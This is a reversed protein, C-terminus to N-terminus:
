RVRVQLPGSFRDRMDAGNIENIAAEFKLRWQEAQPLNRTYSFLEALTGYLYVTPHATLLWNTPEDDSLAPIREYLVGAVDGSGDFFFQDGQWAWGTATGQTGRALLDEYSRAALPTRENGDIWLTKVGVTGDPVAICGDFISDSLSVQMQRVRLARNMRDEALTVFDPTLAALDSRASWAIASAQLESYTSLAM